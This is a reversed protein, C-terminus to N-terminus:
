STWYLTGETIPTSHTVGGSQAERRHCPLTGVSTTSPKLDGSDLCRERRWSLFFKTKFLPVERSVTTPGEGVVSRTKLITTESVGQVVGRPKCLLNPEM